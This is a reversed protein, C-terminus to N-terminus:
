HDEPKDRGNDPLYIVTKGPEIPNDPDNSHQLKDAPKYGTRDLIDRSAVIAPMGSKKAEHSLTTAADVSADNLIEMVRNRNKRYYERRFKEQEKLASYLLGRKEFWWKVTAQKVKLIRAIDRYQYNDLHMDIARQYKVELEDYLSGTYEPPTQDTEM